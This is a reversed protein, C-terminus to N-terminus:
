RVFLVRRSLVDRDTKLRLIYVGSTVPRGNFDIGKWRIRYSGSLREGDVLVCVDRGLTDYIKLEVHTSVGVRYYITAESNFPNPHASLFLGGAHGTKLDEVGVGGNSPYTGTHREDHQFVPWELLPEEIEWPCDWVYIFSDGCTSVIEIDGDNDLDDMALRFCNGDSVIPFGEVPTGDVNWAFVVNTRYSTIVVEVEGDGDIDGILPNGDVIDGGERTKVPWGPLPDGNKDVLFVYAHYATGFGLELEGDRDVDAFALKSYAYYDNRWTTDRRGFRDYKEEGHSYIEVEGDGDMDAAALSYNWNDTIVPFGELVTGDYRLVYIANKGGNPDDYNCCGTIIESCGDGDLDVVVIPSRPGVNLGIDVGPRFPWGPLITGDYNYAYLETETGTIIDKYGDGNIDEVTVCNVWEHTGGLVVPWGSFYSGDPEFVHVRGNPFYDACVDTNEVVIIEPIGDNNLDAIAPTSFGAKQGVRHPWCSSYMEGNSRFIYIYGSGVLETIVLENSGDKDFDYVMPYRPWRGVNVPWGPMLPIVTTDAALARTNVARKYVIDMNKSHRDIFDRHIWAKHEKINYTQSYFANFTSLLIILFNKKIKM